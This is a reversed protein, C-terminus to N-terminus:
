NEPKEAATRGCKFVWEIVDEDSLPRDWANHGGSKFETYRTKGDQSSGYVQKEDERIRPEEERAAMIAQFM